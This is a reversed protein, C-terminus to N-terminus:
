IDIINRSIVGGMNEQVKHYSTTAQSGTVLRHHYCFNNFHEYVKLKDFCTNNDIRGIQWAQDWENDLSHLVRESIVRNDKVAHGRQRHSLM